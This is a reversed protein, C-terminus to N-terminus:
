HKNWLLGFVLYGSLECDPSETSPSAIVVGAKATKAYAGNAGINTLIGDLAFSAETSLWTNLSATARASLQPAAAVAHSLALVPLVKSLTLM